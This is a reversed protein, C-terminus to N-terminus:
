AGDDVPPDGLAPDAGGGVVEPDAPRPHAPVRRGGYMNKSGAFPGRELLVVSRGRAPSHSRRARHRRPRRRRRDVDVDPM